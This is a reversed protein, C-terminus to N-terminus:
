FFCINSCFQVMARAAQVRPRKTRLLGLGRRPMFIAFMLVIHGFARAWSIQLPSYDAGLIKAVGSMFPFVVGSACMFLIGLLVQQQPTPPSKVNLM